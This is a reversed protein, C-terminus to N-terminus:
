RGRLHRRLLWYGYGAFVAALAVNILGNGVDPSSPATAAAIPASSQITNSFDIAFHIVVLPWIAGTVLATAAFAFGVLATYLVQFGVDVPHLGAWLNMLHFAGFLAASGIAARMLGRSRLATLVVGRFTAEEGFGVALMTVTAMALTRPDNMTIGPGFVLPIAPYLLLPLFPLVTSRTPRTAFGARRWWGLATLLAAPLIIRTADLGLLSWGGTSTELASAPVALLWGLLALAFGTTVAVATVVPRRTAFRRIAVTSAPLSTSLSTM